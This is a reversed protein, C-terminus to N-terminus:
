GNRILEYYSGFDSRICLKAEKQLESAIALVLHQMSIPANREAAQFAANLVINKISGGALKFQRALFALDIDDARPADAPLHNRWIRERMVEDPFPFEVIQQIRRLFADDLNTQLNTALVVIGEYQEVRQLLYNVEINAYRDHADKVETRKGFLADAEDFFLVAQSREADRFIGSLNRETEGIYKSVVNSLDIQFLELALERALVEAAMTKGTGSPGTFLVILGKGRSLKEGFGWDRHVTRRFKLWGAIHRLQHIKESPLVLDSWEYRPEVRLAFRDLRPSMMTRGATLVDEFSPAAAVGDRSAAIGSALEVIQQIHRDGHGFADALRATDWDATRRQAAAQWSIRRAAYSPPDVAIRWLRVHTPPAGFAESAGLLLLPDRLDVLESWLDTLATRAQEHDHDSPRDDRVQVALLADALMADRRLTSLLGPSAALARDDSLLLKRGMTRAFLEAAGRRAGEANGTIEIVIGCDRTRKLCAACTEIRAISSAEIELECRGVKTDILDAGPTAWRLPPALLYSVVADDLKLWRRVLPTSRETPDEGLHILRRGVLAGDPDFLCRGNLAERASRCIIQLALGVSPRKRTVDDHLYAYLTEYAPELEPSLAILLVDVEAPSLDFYRALPALSLMQGWAETVARRQEIRARLSELKRDLAAFAATMTTQRMWRDDIFNVREVLADIEAEGIVLGRMDAPTDLGPRERQLRVARVLMLDLRQLEEFLHEASDAYPVVDSTVAVSALVASPRQAVM